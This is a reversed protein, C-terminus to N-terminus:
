SLVLVSHQEVQYCMKKMFLQTCAPEYLKSLTETCLNNGTNDQPQM